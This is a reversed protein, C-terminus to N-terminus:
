GFVTSSSMPCLPTSDFTSDDTQCFQEESRAEEAQEREALALLIYSLRKAEDQRRRSLGTVKRQTTAHAAALVIEPRDSAFIRNGSTWVVAARRRPDRRSVTPLIDGPVLSSLACGRASRIGSKRIRVFVRMRGILVERWEKKPWCQSIPRTIDHSKRLILLDSRRWDPAVGPIGGAALANSEFFPTEYNLRGEEIGIPELSLRRLYKLFKARDEDAGPRAGIPMLSM